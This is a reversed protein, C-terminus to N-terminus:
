LEDRVYIIDGERSSPSVQTFTYRRLPRRRGPVAMPAMEAVVGGGLVGVSESSCTFFSWSRRAAWHFAEGEYPRSCASRDPWVVLVSLPM